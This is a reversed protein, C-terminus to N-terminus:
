ATVLELAIATGEGPRSEVRWAGGLAEVRQRVNTMGVNMEAGGLDFGVGDDSVTLRVGRETRAAAIRVTGGEMKPGIGHKLANEVLPQILMPPLRTERLDEPAEIQYNLKQEFREAEIELYSRIFDIEEALAVMDRRTSDLAYRFVRALNLITRETEPQGRAMEALTNLTNFLFHPNIQARLAKLEAKAALQESQRAGFSELLGAFQAAVADIFTLDESGYQQGRQRPGIGLRGLTREQAGIRVVIPSPRSVEPGYEVFEATLAQALRTTVVASLAEADACKAMQAAMTQFERRYDPRRFIVRDLIRDGTRYLSASLWAFLAAAVCFAAGQLAADLTTLYPLLLFAIAAAIAALILFLLGRKLMVDFFAFRAQYYILGMFSPLLLLHFLISLGITV